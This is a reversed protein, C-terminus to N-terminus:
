QFRTELKIVRIATEILSSKWQTTKMQIRWDDDWLKSIFNEQLKTDICDLPESLKTYEQIIRGEDVLALLEDFWLHLKQETSLEVCQHPKGLQCGLCNTNQVTPLNAILAKAYEMKLISELLTISTLQEVPKQQQETQNKDSKLVSTIQMISDRLDCLKNFTSLHFHCKKRRDDLFEIKMDNREKKLSVSRFSKLTILNQQM